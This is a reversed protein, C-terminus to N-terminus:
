QGSGSGPVVSWSEQHFMEDSQELQAQDVTLGPVPVHQGTVAHQVVLSLQSVQQALNEIGGMIQNTEAISESKDQFRQRAEVEVHHALTQVVQEL